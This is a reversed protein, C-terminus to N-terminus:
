GNKKAILGACRLCHLISKEMEQFTMDAAPKRAILVLDIGNPLLEAHKRIIEKVLRRTRNRVVANGIKKSASVGVRFPKGQESEPRKLYYVAFQRNAASQGHRYVYQFDERRTLRHERQM